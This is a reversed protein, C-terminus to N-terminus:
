AKDTTETMTVMALMGGLNLLISYNHNLIKHNPYKKLLEECKVVRKRLLNVFKKLNEMEVKSYQHEIMYELKDLLSDQLIDVLLNM